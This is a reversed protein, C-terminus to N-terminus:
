GGNNKSQHERCRKLGEAADRHGPSLTLAKEFLGGARTPLGLYLLVSGLESIYLASAPELKIAKELSKAAEKLKKQRKQSLAHYYYFEAKTEDFYLAQAFSLEAEEPNDANLAAKGRTFAANARDQPTENHSSPSSSGSDYEKRRRPDSLVSYAENVSSFISSLKSRMSDDAFRFHRDPHYKKASVYYAKRIEAPSANRDLDLLEYHGLRGYSAHMAEIMEKIESDDTDKPAKEAIEERISETLDEASAQLVSRDRIELLRINLLAYIIKLADIANLDSCMLVQSISKKGDICAIIKRGAADANIDQFLDLPNMSFCPISDLSPLDQRIAYFSKIRQIGRYILTAASLKLTIIEEAPLPTELFYFRGHELEFIGLIIEEVQHRVAPILEDFRLYGLRLLIEGQRKSSKKLERVSHNYQELTIRRERLLLDGLRDEPRNSASFVIDGNNIYLKKVTSGAEVTLIGTKQSRQLGIMIDAFKFERFRGKLGKVYELGLRLSQGQRAQWMIRGSAMIEPEAVMVEILEDKQILPANEICIGIGNLSYDFIRANFFSDRYSFDFATERPYRRYHRRDKAFTTNM